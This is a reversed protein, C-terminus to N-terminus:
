HGRRAEIKIIIRAQSGPQNLVKDRAARLRTEVTDCISDWEAEDETDLESASFTLTAIFEADSDISM